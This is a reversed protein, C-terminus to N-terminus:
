NFGLRKARRQHLIDRLKVSQEHLRQEQLRQPSEAQKPEEPRRGKSPAKAKSKAKPAKGKQRGNYLRLHTKYVNEADANLSDM